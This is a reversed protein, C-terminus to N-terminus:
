DSDIDFSTPRVQNTRRQHRITLNPHPPRLGLEPFFQGILDSWEYGRKQHVDNPFLITYVSFEIGGFMERVWTRTRSEIQTYPVRRRNINLCEESIYRIPSLFQVRRTIKLESSIPLM